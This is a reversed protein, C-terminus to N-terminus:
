SAGNSTTATASAATSSPAAASAPTSGSAPPTSSGTAAGSTPASFILSVQFQVPFPCATQGSPASTGSSAGADNAAALSVSSVGTIRHLQVMTQAVTAQSQACGTLSVSPPPPASSSAAATTTTSGPASASATQTTATLTALAARAPMVRSIQSLLKSWPFRSDALQKVSAIQAGRQQSSAVLAAYSNATAQWSAVSATVQALESKRATVDNAASVYLVAAVLVALLGGIVCLTIPSASVSVQRKRADGPILNVANM